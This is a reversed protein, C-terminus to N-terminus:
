KSCGSSIWAAIQNYDASGVPLVATKQTLNGSPHPVTSPRKLLLNNAPNCTDTVMSLVVNFDGEPDGTLVLRNLRVPTTPGGTSGRPEHCGQCTSRLISHVRQTYSELSLGTISRLKGTADFPDNTYQGGLDIWEALLRQEARNLLARHDPTTSAPHASRAEASAMLTDGSLLEVLRSRRALGHAEGESAGTEVLAPGRVVVPVGDDLRTRALGTAPDILPDGLLLREYSNLRGTGAITASLDLKASANHCAVCTAAGRERTWLPQIQEGYNIIGRVPAATALDDAASANGSYRLAIASRAQVGAKGTDAWVDTAILDSLLSLAGPDLRTRTGAMTEGPLHAGAMASKLAAPLMNVVSGSNLAGGRRPSHCGDCTRREGPRVQI